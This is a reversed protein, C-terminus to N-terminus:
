FSITHHVFNAMCSVRVGNGIRKNSIIKFFFHSSSIVKVKIEFKRDIQIETKLFCACTLKGSDCFEGDIVKEIFVRESERESKREREREKM